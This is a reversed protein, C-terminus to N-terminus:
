LSFFRARKALSEPLASLTPKGMVYIGKGRLAKVGYQGVFSEVGSASAFFV